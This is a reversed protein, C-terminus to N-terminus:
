IKISYTKTLQSFFKWAENVTDFCEWVIYQKGNPCLMVQYHEHECWLQLYFNENEKKFVYGCHLAYATLRGDKKYFVPKAKKLNSYTDIFM